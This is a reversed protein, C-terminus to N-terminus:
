LAYLFVIFCYIILNRKQETHLWFFAKMVLRKSVTNTINDIERAMRDTDTQLARAERVLRESEDLSNEVGKVTNLANQSVNSFCFFCM